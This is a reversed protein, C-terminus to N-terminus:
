PEKTNCGKPDGEKCDKSCHRRGCQNYYIKDPGFILWALFGSFIFFVVGTIVEGWDTM